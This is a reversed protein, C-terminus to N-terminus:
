ADDGGERVLRFRRTRLFGGALVFCLVLGQVINVLALPLGLSIRVMDGGTLLGGFLLAVAPILLPHFGALAAVIIATYGYGPSFGPQLRHHLGAVEAMGALGALSGSAFLVALIARRVDMGAYRAAGPNQGIARVEFGLRTRWLALHLLPAAGLAFLLGLHVRSGGLVPLAAGPGFPPTLPFGFTEPDRWPGQVLYEVGLVAVYNLMLTVIVESVSLFARLLGAVLALLGGAAMAALLMAPLLFWGPAGPCALAVGAAAAAGAQLQGEAGVNWLNMRFAPALGLACLCLPIAKVLTGQLAALSGFSGSWFERLAAAPDAGGAALLLGSAGCGLLVAALSTV